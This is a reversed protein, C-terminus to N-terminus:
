EGVQGGAGSLEAIKNTIVYFDAPYFQCIKVCAERDLQPSVTAVLMTEIRRAIDPPTEDSIGLSSKIADIKEASSGAAMASVLSQFNRALDRADNAQCIEYGDLQRVTFIPEEGDDFFAALAPLKIEATRPKIKAQQFKTVDFPM